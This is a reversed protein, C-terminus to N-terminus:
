PQPPRGAQGPKRTQARKLGFWQFGKAWSGSVTQVEVEDLAKPEIGSLLSSIWDRDHHRLTLGEPSDFIGYRGYKAEDRAYREKHREDSQIWLDSVYLLGGPRLVRRIEHIIARQGDDTPVSTLVNFLLVAGVSDDPPDVRPPSKIPEFRLAPFRQRATAIMAEAPDVGLLDHYGRSYLMGLVRGYGCGYDLIRDTPSVWQALREFNVPHGLPKTPGLKNWYELQCDLDQM